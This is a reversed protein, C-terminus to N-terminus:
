SVIADCSFAPAGSTKQEIYMWYWLQFMLLSWIQVPHEEQGVLHPKVIWQYLHPQFIGQRRLYDAGLLHDVVPRLEERLWRSVPLVFGRKPASLLEPPLLDAMASRLLYKYDDIRTRLHPPISFCFKVFEHDLFPVRAEISHAMSFRDTMALFEEPLQTRMDLVAVANRPGGALNGNFLNSLSDATNQFGNGFQAQILTRKTDDTFYYFADHHCSSLSGAMFRLFHKTQWHSSAFHASGLVLLAAQRLRTGLSELYRFKGYDGFLEDGGTGTMAVKVAGAMSRFIYWSPLGGGYPEDLHWVMAPLDRLLDNAELVMEHHDTQWKKAVLHALPLENLNQDSFGISYTSLDSVGNERMLGVISSSDLGGSLSCAVPVDSLSWRRVAARLEGRLCEQWDKPSISHDPRVVDEIRWYRQMKLQRTRLNYSFSHGPLLRRVSRFISQEGPIHLLSLYDFVSQPAIERSVWPLAILAKLESTFVFRLGDKSYYFPKIGLPDRAGFLIGRPVDYIVFAFMGNLLQPMNFGHTEYLHLLVETDSNRTRFRRGTQELEARLAPSNFIEGNFIIWCTQDENSMPQAGGVPDLISLRRMGLAVGAHEDIFVGEDDPGRYTQM